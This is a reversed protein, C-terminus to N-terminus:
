RALTAAPLHREDLDAGTLLPSAPIVVLNARIAALMTEWLPTVNDLCVLIADGPKLGHNRLYNAVQSSRRSLEGYTSEEIRNGSSVVSLAVADSPPM